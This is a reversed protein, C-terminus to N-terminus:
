PGQQKECGDVHDQLKATSDLGRVRSPQLCIESNRATSLSRHVEVPARGRSKASATASSAGWSSALAKKVLAPIKM